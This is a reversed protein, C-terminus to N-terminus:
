RALDVNHASLFQKINESLDIYSFLVIKDKYGTHYLSAVFSILFEFIMKDSNFKSDLDEEKRERIDICTLIHNL